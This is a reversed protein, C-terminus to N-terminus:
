VGNKSFFGWRGVSYMLVPLCGGCVKMYIVPIYPVLGFVVDSSDCVGPPIEMLFAIEWYGPSPIVVGASALAM